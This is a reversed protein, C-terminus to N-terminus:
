NPGEFFDQKMSLSNIVSRSTVIAARCDAVCHALLSPFLHRISVNVQAEIHGIHRFGHVPAGIQNVELGLSCIDFTGPIRVHSLYIATM